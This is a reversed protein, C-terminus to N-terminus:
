LLTPQPIPQPQYIYPFMLPYRDTNNSSIIHPTDGIGDSGTENQSAGKKEDVGTYNSWYNGGSPYGNDWSDVHNPSDFYVHKDTSNVFNNHYFTNGQFPHTGHRNSTINNGFIINSTSNDIRIGDINETINNGILNCNSSNLLHIGNVFGRIQMNTITVNSRFSIDVGITTETGMGTAEVGYGAGEVVINDKQVTINGVFSDVLTYVAGIRQVPATSPDINGDSRIFVSGSFPSTAAQGNPILLLTYFLLFTLLLGSAAKM